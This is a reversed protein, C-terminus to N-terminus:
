GDYTDADTGDSAAEWGIGISVGAAVLGVAVAPAINANM